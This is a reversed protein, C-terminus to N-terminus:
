EVGEVITTTRSPAITTKYNRVKGKLRSRSVTECITLLCPRHFDSLLVNAWGKLVIESLEQFGDVYLQHTAAQLSQFGDTILGHFTVTFYAMVLIEPAEGATMIANVTEM